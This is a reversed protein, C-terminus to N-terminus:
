IPLENLDKFSNTFFDLSPLHKMLKYYQNQAIKLAMYMKSLAVIFIILTSISPSLFILAFVVVVLVITRIVANM